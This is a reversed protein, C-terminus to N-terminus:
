YLEAVVMEVAVVLDLLEEVEAEALTQLEQSDQLQHAEAMVVEELAALAEVIVLQVLPFLIPEM